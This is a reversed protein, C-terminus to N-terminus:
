DRWQEHALSLAFSDLALPPLFHFLQTVILRVAAAAAALSCSSGWSMFLSPWIKNCCCSCINTFLLEPTILTSYFWYLYVVERTAAAAAATASFDCYIVVIFLSFFLFNHFHTSSSSSYPSFKCVCVCEAPQPGKASAM